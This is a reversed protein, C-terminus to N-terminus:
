RIVNINGTYKEEESNTNTYKIQWIYTDEQVLVNNWKGDWGQTYDNTEFFLEGWRSFVRFVYNNPPLGLFSPQFSDNLGDNNPTFSNSIFFLNDGTVEEQAITVCGNADTVTVSYIGPALNSLPNTTDNTSWNYTVPLTCNVCLADISGDDCSFCTSAKPTLIVSNTDVYVTTTAVASSLLADTVTVSCVSTTLTCISASSTTLGTNWSYQYPPTGGSVTPTILACAQPCTTVPQILITPACFTVNILQSLTDSYCKYYIIAVVSHTGAASFTHTTTLGSSTNNSGSGVDDFNWSVSQVSYNAAACAGTSASNPQLSFSYAACNATYSYTPTPPIFYHPSFNPLGWRSKKPALSVANAVFGCGVGVINPNSIEHISTNIMEAVYLKGNSALQMQGDMTSSSYLITKSAMIAANNGACLNYQLVDINSEVVYLLRGDPSFELGYCDSTNTITLPTSAIGTSNDFNFVEVFGGGFEYVACALRSGDTSIKLQGLTHDTVGSHSSGVSSLVPTTSVGAATVLYSRFINSNWEHTVVWYDTNNCHKVAILKEATPAYMSINKTTTIDGNGGNLTMDVESYKLGDPGGSATTTFIYYLTSSGPKLVIASSQTSSADGLLGAGNPMQQHTRDYVFVGNTYFLLNGNADAISACGESTTMTSNMLAVPTGSNFDLAAKAGFYWMNTERQAKLSFDFFM